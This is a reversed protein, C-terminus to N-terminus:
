ADVPDGPKAAFDPPSPSAFHFFATDLATGFLIIAGVSHSVKVFLYRDMTNM